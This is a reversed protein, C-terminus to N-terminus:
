NGKSQFSYFTYIDFLAGVFSCVLSIVSMGQWASGSGFTDLFALLMQTTLQGISELGPICSLVWTSALFGSIPITPAIGSFLASLALSRLFNSSV